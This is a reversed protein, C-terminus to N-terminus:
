MGVTTEKVKLCTKCLWVPNVSSLEDLTVIIQMPKGCLSYRRGDESVYDLIHTKKPKKSNYSYRPNRSGVRHTGLSRHGGSTRRRTVKRKSGIRKTRSPTRTM